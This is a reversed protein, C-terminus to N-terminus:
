QRDSLYVFPFRFGAGQVLGQITLVSIVVEEEKM